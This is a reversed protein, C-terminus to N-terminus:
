MEMCPTPRHEKKDKGDSVGDVDLVFHGDVLTNALAVRSTPFVDRVRYLGLLM